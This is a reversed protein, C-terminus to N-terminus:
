LHVIEFRVDGSTLHKCRVDDPRSIHVGLTLLTIQLLNECPAAKQVSLPFFTLTMNSYVIFEFLRDPRDFHKYYLM